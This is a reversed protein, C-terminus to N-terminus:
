LVGSMTFGLLPSQVSRLHYFGLSVAKQHFALQLPKQHLALQHFALQLNFYGKFVRSITFGLLCPSQVSQLHYFGLSVAKSYEQSPLVWSVPKSCEPSSLVWSAPGKFVRSIIFGLLCPSQISQLHYFGLSVAKSYEQSPIVWSVRGKFVRSIIFGM